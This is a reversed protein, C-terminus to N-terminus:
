KVGALGKINPILLEPFISNLKEPSAQIEKISLFDTVEFRVQDIAAVRAAGEQLIAGSDSKVKVWLYYKPYSIGSQTPATRLLQHSISLTDNKFSPQFYQVFDRNLISNFSKEPPINEEIHSKRVETASNLLQANASLSSCFICIGLSIILKMNQRVGLEAATKLNHNQPISKRLLVM